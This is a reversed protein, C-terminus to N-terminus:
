GIGQCMSVGGRIKKHENGASLINESCRPSSQWRDLVIENGSHFDNGSFTPSEIKLLYVCM